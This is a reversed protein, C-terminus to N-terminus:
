IFIINWLFADLSIQWAFLQVHSKGLSLSQIKTHLLAKHKCEMEDFLMNFLCYEVLQSTSLINLAILFHDELSSWSPLQQQLRPLLYHSDLAPSFLKSFYEM